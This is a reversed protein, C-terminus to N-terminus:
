ASADESSRDVAEDHASLALQSFYLQAQQESTNGPAAVFLTAIPANTTIRVGHRTGSPASMVSSILQTWVVGAVARGLRRALTDASPTSVGAYIRSLGADDAM